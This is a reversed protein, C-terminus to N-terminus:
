STSKPKLIRLWESEIRKRTEEQEAKRIEEKVIRKAITGWKPPASPQTSKRRNRM